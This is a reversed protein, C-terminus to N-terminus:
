RVLYLRWAYTENYEAFNERIENFDMYKNM